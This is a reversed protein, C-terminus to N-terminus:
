KYKIVEFDGALYRRQNGANTRDLYWSHFTEDATISLADSLTDTMTITIQGTSLNTEVVTITTLDGNTEVVKSEFTYGTLDIDFDLLISLDDGQALKINLSGPVQTVNAM